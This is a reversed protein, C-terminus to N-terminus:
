KRNIIMASPSYGNIYSGGNSAQSFTPNIKLNILGNGGRSKAEEVAKKLANEPSAIRADRQRMVGKDYYWEMDKKSESGTTVVYITSIPNYDFSVSNSETIFFGQEVYPTYDLVTMYEQYTSKSTSCSQSIVALLLLIAFTIKKM